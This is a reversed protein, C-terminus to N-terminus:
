SNPPGQDIIFPRHVAPVGTPGTRTSKDAWTNGMYHVDDLAGNLFAQEQMAANARAQADALRQKLEATRARVKRFSHTWEDVGYRFRPTFLDSEMPAGVEIGRAKAVYTLFHIGARQMEYEEGAAMDVGWFGIKTAGAKIAMAMMWFLSSSCFWRDPDFEALIDDAPLVHSQLGPVHAGTWLTVDRPELAHLFQVYEPSFWPQGPEWLHLEFWADVRPAVGYVGPSCGWIKWSPDQYPAIRVSAPASGVLAIKLEESM